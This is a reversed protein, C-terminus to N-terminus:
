LTQIDCPDRGFRFYMHMSEFSVQQLSRVMDQSEAKGAEIRIDGACLLSQYRQFVLPLSVKHLKREYAKFSTLWVKHKTELLHINQEKRRLEKVAWWVEQKTRRRYKQRIRM